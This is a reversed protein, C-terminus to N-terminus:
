KKLRMKKVPSKFNIAKEIFTSLQEKGIPKALHGLLNLGYSKILRSTTELIRKDEGSIILIAGNFVTDRLISLFTMGDMVPM